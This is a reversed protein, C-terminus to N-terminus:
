PCKYAHEYAIILGKWISTGEIWLEVGFFFAFTRWVVDFLIVLIFNDCSNEISLWVDIEVELIVAVSKYRCNTAAAFSCRAKLLPFFPMQSIRVDHFWQVWLQVDNLHDSPETYELKHCHDSKPLVLTFKNAVELHVIEGCIVDEFHMHVMIFLLM